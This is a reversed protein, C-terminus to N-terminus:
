PLTPRKPKDSPSSQMPPRSLTTTRSAPPGAGGSNSRQVVPATQQGSLKDASAHAAVFPPPSGPRPAPPSRASPDAPTSLTAPSAAAPMPHRTSSSSPPPPQHHHYHQQQQLRSLDESLQTVCQRLEHCERALQAVTSHSIHQQEIARMQAALLLKNGGAAEQEETKLLCAAREIPFFSMFDRTRIKQIVFKELPLLENDSLVCEKLYAFFYFYQWINHDNEVHSGFHIGNRKFTERDISCIFCSTSKVYASDARVDRLEGFQDVLIALFVNLLIVGVFVYFVVVFIIWGATVGSEAGGEWALDIFQSLEGGTTLGYYMNTLTCQLLTECFLGLDPDYRVRFFSESFIGFIYLMIAIFVGLLALNKSSLRVANLVTKLHANGVVLQLMHFCFFYFNWFGVVSFMFYLTWFVSDFDRLYAEFALVYIKKRDWSRIYPPADRLVAKM